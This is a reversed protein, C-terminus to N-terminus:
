EIKLQIRAALGIEIGDSTYIGGPTQGDPGTKLHIGMTLKEKSLLADIEEKSLELEIRGQKTSISKGDSDTEPSEITIEDLVPSKNGAADIGNLRVSTTFPLDNKYDIMLFLSVVEDPSSEAFPENSVTDEFVLSEASFVLPLELDVGVAFRSDVSVFNTLDDTGSPNVEAEAEYTIREPFVSLLEPLNSNAANIEFAGSISNGPVSPSDLIFKPPNLNEEEGFKGLATANVAAELPVIFSNEYFVTIKPDKLFVAKTAPDLFDFNFDFDFETADTKQLFAGANGTFDQMDMETIEFDASFKDRRDFEVLDMGSGATFVSLKVPLKNYAQSPVTGLDVRYGALDFSGAASGGPVSITESFPVGDKSLAPIEATIEAPIDVESILTYELRANKLNAEKIKVDNDVEVNIVEDALSVSTSPVEVEGKRIKLGTISVQVTMRQELDIPVPTPSGPSKFRPMKVFIENNIVKDKLDLVLDFQEGPDINGKNFKHIFNGSINDYIEFIVDTLGFTFGNDITMTLIGSDIEINKFNAFPPMGIDFNVPEDFAPIPANSGDNDRFAKQILPDDMENVVAKLAYFGSNSSDEIKIVGIEKETIFKFGWFDTFNELLDEASLSAINEERLVIHALGDTSVTFVSDNEIFDKMEFSVTGIPLALEPAAVIGDLDKLSDSLCANFLLAFLFGFASNTLSKKM